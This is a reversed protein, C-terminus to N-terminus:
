IKGSDVMVGGLGWKKALRIKEQVTGADDFLVFRLSHEQNQYTFYRACLETSFYVSAGERAIIEGIEVGTVPDGSGRPSPLLFDEGMEEIEMVVREKGWRASVKEFRQELTGGSLASSVMIFGRKMDKGYSEPAFFELNERKCLGDLEAVVQHLGYNGSYPFFCAIGRFERQKGEQVLQQCFPLVEGVPSASQTSVGLLQGKQGLEKGKGGGRLLQFGAGVRYNMHIQQHEGKGSFPLKNVGVKVM